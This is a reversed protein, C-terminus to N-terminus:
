PLLPVPEWNVPRVRFSKWPEYRRKRAAIQLGTTLRTINYSDLRQWIIGPSTMYDAPPRCWRHRVKAEPKWRWEVIWANPRPPPPVVFLTGQSPPSAPEVPITDISHCQPCEWPSPMAAAAAYLTNCRLCRRVGTRQDPQILNPTVTTSM